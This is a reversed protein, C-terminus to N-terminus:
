SLELLIPCHDSHVAGSLIVSRKLFPRLPEAVAGHSRLVTALRQAAEWLVGNVREYEALYATTPGSEVPGIAEPALAAGISIARPLAPAYPWPDDPCAAIGWQAIGAGALCSVM